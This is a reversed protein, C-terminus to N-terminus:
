SDDGDRAVCPDGSGADGSDIGAWVPAETTQPCGDDTRGDNVEDIELDPEDEYQIEYFPFVRLRAVGIRAVEEASLDRSPIGWAFGGHGPLWRAGTAKRTM